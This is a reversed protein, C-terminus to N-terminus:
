AAGLLFSFGNARSVGTQIRALLGCLSGLAGSNARHLWSRRGLALSGRPEARSSPEDDLVHLRQQDLSEVVTDAAM